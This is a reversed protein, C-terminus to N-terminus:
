EKKWTGGSEIRKKINVAVAPLDKSSLYDQIFQPVALGTDLKTAAYTFLTQNESLKEFLFYGESEKIDNKQAPDLKYDIRYSGPIVTNIQVYKIAAIYFSYEKYITYDNGSQKIVRTEVNSPLYEEMQDFDCFIKFAQDIPANIIISTQGHGQTKGDPAQSFITEYIAQGSLLKEKQEPSFRDLLSQEQSQAHGLPVNVLLFFLIPGFFVSRAIFRMIKMTNYICSLMTLAVTHQNELSIAKNFPEQQYSSNITMTKRSDTTGM